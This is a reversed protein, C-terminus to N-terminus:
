ITKKQSKSKTNKKNDDRIIDGLNSIIQTYQKKPEVFMKDDNYRLITLISSLMTKQSNLSPYTAVTADVIKRVDRLWNFDKCLTDTKHVKKYLTQVRKVQTRLTKETPPPKTGDNYQPDRSRIVLEDAFSKCSNNSVIENIDVNQLILSNIAPDKFDYQQNKFSSLGNHLPQTINDLPKIYKNLNMYPIEDDNEDSSCDSNSDYDVLKVPKKKPENKTKQVENQELEKKKRARYEKNRRANDARKQELTIKVPEVSKEKHKVEGNKLRQRYAKQRISAQIKQADTLPKRQTPM